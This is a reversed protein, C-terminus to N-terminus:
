TTSADVGHSMPASSRPSSSASAPPNAPATASIPRTGGPTISAHRDTRRSPQTTPWVSVSASGGPYDHPRDVRRQRVGGGRMGVKEGHSRPSPATLTMGYQIQRRLGAVHPRLRRGQHHLPADARRRRAHPCVPRPRDGGLRSLLSHGGRSRREQPHDGAPQFRATYWARRVLILLGYLGLHTAESALRQLPHLPVPPPAGRMLRVIVRVVILWLLCFGILKHWGYLTNTLADFNSWKGRNVMYLGVPIMIIVVLATIWHLMRQLPSYSRSTEM